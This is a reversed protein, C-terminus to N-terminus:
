YNCPQSEGVSLVTLKLEAGSNVMATTTLGNMTLNSYESLLDAPLDTEIPTDLVYYLREGDYKSQMNELTDDATGLFCFVNQDEYFEGTTVPNSSYHFSAKACLGGNDATKIKDSLYQTSAYKLGSSYNGITQLRVWISGIRRVYKGTKFNIEDCVWSQGNEDTYNGTSLVPVGLLGNPLAITLTQSQQYSEYETAVSGVEIQLTSLVEDVTLTTDVAGDYVYCCLYKATSPATLTCPNSGSGNIGVTGDAPYEETFMVRFVNGLEKQVTYTTGATCPIVVTLYNSSGWGSITWDDGFYGNVSMYDDKDFLNKGCLTLEIEPKKIRIDWYSISFDQPEDSGGQRIYFWIYLQTFEGSNFQLFVESYKQGTSISTYCNDLLTGSYAGTLVQVTSIVGTPVADLNCRLRVIYDTNPECQFGQSCFMASTTNDTSQITLIGDSVTSIVNACTRKANIDYFNEGTEGANVIDIPNDYSPTGSQTSKGYITLGDLRMPNTTTIAVTEGQASDSEDVRYIMGKHKFRRVM